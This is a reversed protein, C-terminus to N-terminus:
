SAPKMRMRTHGRCVIFGFTVNILVWIKCSTLFPFDDGSGWLGCKPFASTIRNGDSRTIGQSRSKISHFSVGLVGSFFTSFLCLTILKTNQETLVHLGFLFVFLRGDAIMEYSFPCILVYTMFYLVNYVLNPFGGCLILLESLEKPM